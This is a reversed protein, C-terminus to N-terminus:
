SLYAHMDSIIIFVALKSYYLWYPSNRDVVYVFPKVIMRRKIWEGSCHAPARILDSFALCWINIEFLKQIDEPNFKNTPVLGSKLLNGRILFKHNFPLYLQCAYMSSNIQQFSILMSNFTIIHIKNTCGCFSHSIGIMWVFWNLDLPVAQLPMM